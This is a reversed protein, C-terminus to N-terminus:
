YQPPNEVTDVRLGMPEGLKRATEFHSRVSSLVQIGLRQLAPDPSNSAMNQFLEAMPRYLGLQRSLFARDFAEGSAQQLADLSPDQIRAAARNPMDLKREAAIAGFAQRFRAHDAAIDQALQRVAPAGAKQAGLQGAEAQADCFLAARQVARVDGVPMGQGPQPPLRPNPDPTIRTQARSAGGPLLAAGVLILTTRRLM